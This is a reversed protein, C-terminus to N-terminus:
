REYHFGNLAMQEAVQNVALSDEIMGINRSCSMTLMAAVEEPVSQVTMVAAQTSSSKMPMGLFSWKLQVPVTVVATSSATVYLVEQQQLPEKLCCESARPSKVESVVSVCAKSIEAPCTRGIALSPGVWRVGTIM